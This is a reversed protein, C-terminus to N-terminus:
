CNAPLLSNVVPYDLILSHMNFICPPLEKPLILAQEESLIKAKEGMRSCMCVVLSLVEATVFHLLTGCSRCVMYLHHSNM